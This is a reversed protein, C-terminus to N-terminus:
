ETEEPSSILTAFGNACDISRLMGEIVDVDSDDISVQYSFSTFFSLVPRGLDNELESIISKRTEHGQGQVNMVRRMVLDTSIAEAM